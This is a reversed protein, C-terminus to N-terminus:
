WSGTEEKVLAGAESRFGSAGLAAVEATSAGAVVLRATWQRRTTALDIRVRGDSSALPLLLADGDCRVAGALQRQGAVPTALDAVVQGSAEVCRGAGDLTAGADALSVGAIPVSAIPSGLLRGNLGTAGGAAFGRWIQGTIAGEVGWGMRGQALAAPQLSIAVDGLRLPGIAANTIAASWVSGSVGTATLPPAPLVLAAPALGVLGIAAGAVFLLARRM